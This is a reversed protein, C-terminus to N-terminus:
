QKVPVLTQFAKNISNKVYYYMQKKSRMTSIKGVFNVKKQTWNATKIIGVILRRCDNINTQKSFCCKRITELRPELRHCYSNEYEVYDQFLSM